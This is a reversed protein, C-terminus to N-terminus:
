RCSASVSADTGVVFFRDATYTATAAIGTFATGRQWPNITFDGGDIANRFNNNGANYLVYLESLMNNLNAVTTNWSDGQDTGIGLNPGGLPEVSNNKITVRAM